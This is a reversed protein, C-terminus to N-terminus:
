EGDQKKLMEAVKIHLHLGWHKSLYDAVGKRYSEHEECDEKYIDTWVLIPIHSTAPNEKLKRLLEFGDRTGPRTDPDLVILNPKWEEVLEIPNGECPAIRVNVFIMRTLEFKAVRHGLMTHDDLVLVKKDSIYLLENAKM